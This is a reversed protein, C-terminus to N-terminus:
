ASEEIGRESGVSEVHSANERKEEERNCHHIGHVVHAVDHPEVGELDLELPM